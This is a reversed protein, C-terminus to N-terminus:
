PLRGLARLAADREREYVCAKCGDSHERPRPEPRPCTCPGDSEDGGCVCMFVPEAKIVHMGGRSTAFLDLVRGLAGSELAETPIGACANVCAVIRRWNAAEAGDPSGEGVVRFVAADFARGKGDLFWPESSHKDGSV